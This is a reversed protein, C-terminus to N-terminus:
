SLALILIIPRMMCGVLDLHRIGWASLSGVAVALGMFHFYLRPIVSIVWGLGVVRLEVM